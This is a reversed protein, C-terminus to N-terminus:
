FSYGSGYSKVGEVWATAPNNDFLNRVGYPGGPEGEFPNGRNLESSCSSNGILMLEIWPKEVSFGSVSILLIFLIVYKKM